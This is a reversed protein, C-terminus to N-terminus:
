VFAFDDQDAVVEGGVDGEEALQAVVGAVQGVEEFAGVGCVHVPGEPPFRVVATQALNEGIEIDRPPVEM